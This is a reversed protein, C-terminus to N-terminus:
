LKYVRDYTMAIMHSKHQDFDYIVCWIMEPKTIAYEIYIQM